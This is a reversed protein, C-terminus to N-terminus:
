ARAVAVARRRRFVAGLAGFGLLMTLWTAPEPVASSTRESVRANTALYPLKGAALQFSMMVGREAPGEAEFGFYFDDVGPMVPGTAGAAGRVVIRAPVGMAPMAQVYLAVPVVSFPGANVGQATVIRFDTPTTFVGSTSDDYSVTFEGSMAGIPNTSGGFSVYDSATVIFTRTLVAADSPATALCAAVAASVYRLM